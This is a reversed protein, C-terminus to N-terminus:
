LVIRGCVVSSAAAAAAGGCPEEVLFLLLSADDDRAAAAIQFFARRTGAPVLRRPRRCRAGPSSRSPSRAARRSHQAPCVGLLGAHRPAADERAGVGDDVEASHGYRLASQASLLADMSWAKLTAALSPTEHRRRAHSNGHGTTQM